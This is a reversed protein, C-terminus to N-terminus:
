RAAAIPVGAYQASGVACYAIPVGDYLEVGMVYSVAATVALFSYSTASAQMPQYKQGTAGPFLEALQKQADTSNAPFTTKPEILMEFYGGAGGVAGGTTVAANVGNYAGYYLTGGAAAVDIAAQMAPPLALNVTGAYGAAGTIKVSKAKYKEVAAKLAAAATAPDAQAVTATVNAGPTVNTTPPTVSGAPNTASPLATASPKAAPTGQSVPKGVAYPTLHDTKATVSGAGDAESEVVMWDRGDFYMVTGFSGSAKFRLEFPEALKTVERERDKATIEYVPTVLTWGKPAAALAASEKIVVDLASKGSGRIELAGDKSRL